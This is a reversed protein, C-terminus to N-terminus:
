ENSIVMGLHVDQAKQIIIGEAHPFLKEIEGIREDISKM